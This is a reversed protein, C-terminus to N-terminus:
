QRLKKGASGGLCLEFGVGGAERGNIMLALRHSGPYLRRTTVPRFSHRLTGHWSEGPKLEMIRGKFVKPSSSGDAKRHHIAYDLMVRVPAAGDNCLAVSFVLNEGILVQDLDPELRVLRLKEPSPFGNLELAGTHGRKLLTRCAHRITRGTEVDEPREARWGRLREVVWEPHAKSHDNLHNAVSRRVYASPDHRLRQLIPWALEPDTALEPLREGWPLLPRSGESALRRLHEDDEASWQLLQALTRDRQATLFPRIAFEATFRKTMEALAAMAQDFHPLGHRAVLETLPWVQFGRVGVADNGDRALAGTLVAFLQPPELALTEHLRDALLHMREKLGLPLLAPGLLRLFRAEDFGPRVRKVAAAMQRAKAPSFENKFPEM